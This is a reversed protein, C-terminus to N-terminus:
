GFISGIAGLVGGLGNQRELENASKQTMINTTNQLQANNNNITQSTVDGWLSSLGSILENRDSSALDLLKSAMNYQSDYAAKQAQFNTNFDARESEKDQMMKNFAKEAEESALAQQKAALKNLYGSSFMNGANASSNAIAENAAQVRQNAFKDYFDDVNKGYTFEGGDFTGVGELGAVRDAYNKVVDEQTGYTGTLMNGVNTGYTGILTQNNGAVKDVYGQLQDLSANAADVQAGNSLGLGDLIPNLIGGGITDGIGAFVAAGYSGNNWQNVTNDYVGM